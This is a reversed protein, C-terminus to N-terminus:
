AQLSDSAAPVTYAYETAILDKDSITWPWIRTPTGGSCTIAGSDTVAVQSLVYLIHEAGCDAAHDGHTL